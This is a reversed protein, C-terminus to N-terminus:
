LSHLWDVMADTKEAPVGEAWLCEAGQRLLIVQGHSATGVFLDTSSRQDPTLGPYKKGLVTHYDRFFALATEPSAWRTRAVLVFQSNAPDEYLIYRDGLWGTALAKAEDESIFQGLLSYYGLEGFTNGTLVQLGSIRELPPPRDLSIAPLIKSDYYFSPDFIEKTAEPPRVFLENLTKWGGRQLGSYMFGMGQAYPFLAQLRFFYPASTFAPFEAMQQNVMSALLPELSPISALNVPGLMRQLMAATAHGEMVAQRANTADDNSREAHLFKVLDFNQDQLAHTLEHALVLRQMEPTIWDAIFMTKHRPDYAGAAQETYFAILFKELDFEPTVLGFAKLVAEQTRIEEPTYEERLSEELYKRIEPRSLVLKKLPAKIPLGTIRSMEALVQDAQTLLSQASSTEPAQTAPTQALATATCLLVVAACRLTRRYM